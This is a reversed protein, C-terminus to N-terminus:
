QPLENGLGCESEEDEMAMAAGDPSDADACEAKAMGAAAEVVDLLSWPTNRPLNLYPTKPRAPDAWLRYNGPYINLLGGDAFTLQYHSDTRHALLMFAASALRESEAFQEAALRRRSEADARWQIKGPTLENTM